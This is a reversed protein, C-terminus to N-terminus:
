LIAFESPELKPWVKSLYNKQFPIFVVLMDASNQFNADEKVSHKLVAERVVELELLEFIALEDLLFLWFEFFKTALDVFRVEWFFLNVYSKRWLVLHQWHEFVM